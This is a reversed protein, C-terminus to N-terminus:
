LQCFSLLIITFIFLSHKFKILTNSFIQKLNNILGKYCCTLMIDKNVYGFSKSDSFKVQIYFIESFVKLLGVRDLM